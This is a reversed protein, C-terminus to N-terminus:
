HPRRMLDSIKVENKEVPKKVIVKKSPENKLSSLGVPKSNKGSGSIVDQFFCLIANM